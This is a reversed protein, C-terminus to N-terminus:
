FYIKPYKKLEEKEEKTPTFDERLIIAKEETDKFVTDNLYDIFAHIDFEYYGRENLYPSSPLWEDFKAVYSHIKNAVYDPVEILDMDYMWYVRIKM